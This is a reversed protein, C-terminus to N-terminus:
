TESTCSVSLATPMVPVYAFILTDSRLITLTVFYIGCKWDMQWSVADLYDRIETYFHPWAGYQQFILTGDDHTKRLQPSM